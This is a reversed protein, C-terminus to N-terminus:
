TLFPNLIIDLEAPSITFGGPKEIGVTFGWNIGVSVCRPRFSAQFHYPPQLVMMLGNKKLGLLGYGLQSGEIGVVISSNIIKSLIDTASLKSTDIIQFNKNLLYKIIEDENILKRGSEYGQGRKLYILSNNSNHQTIENKIVSRLLKLRSVKNLNYGTDDILYLRKIRLIDHQYTNRLKLLNNLEDLHHYNTHPKIKLPEITLSNALLELINDSILWDGFYRSGSPTSTLILEDAEKIKRNFRPGGLSSVHEAIYGKYLTGNDLTVDKIIHAVTPKHTCRTMTAYNIADEIDIFYNGTVREIQGDLTIPPPLQGNEAPHLVKVESASHTLSPGQQQSLNRIKLLGYAITRLITQPM